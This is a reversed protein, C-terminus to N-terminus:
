SLKEPPPFVEGWAVLKVQNTDCRRLTMVEPSLIKLIYVCEEEVVSKFHKYRGCILLRDIEAGTEPDKVAPEIRVLLYDDRINDTILGEFYCARIMQFHTSDSSTLYFDPNM